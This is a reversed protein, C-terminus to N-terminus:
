SIYETEEREQYQLVLQAFADAPLPPSIIYGQIIDCGHQRLFALQEANV